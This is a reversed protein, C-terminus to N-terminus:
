IARPSGPRRDAIAADPRRWIRLMVEFGNLKPRSHPRYTRDIAQRILECMPLGSRAREDVLFNYQRDSVMVHMRQAMLGHTGM